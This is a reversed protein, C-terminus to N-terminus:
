VLAFTIVGMGLTIFPAFPIQTEKTVKHRVFLILVFLCNLILAATLMYVCDELGISMGLLTILIGDGMGIKGESILSLTILFIGPVMSVVVDIWTAKYVVLNYAVRIITLAFIVSLGWCPITKTKVDCVSIVIMVMMTGIVWWLDRM